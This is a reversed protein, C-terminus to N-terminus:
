TLPPRARVWPAGTGLACMEAVVRDAALYRALHDAIDAIDGDTMGALSPIEIAVECRRGACYWAAIWVMEPGEAGLEWESVWDPRRANMERRLADDTSEVVQREGM